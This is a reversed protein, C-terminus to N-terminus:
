NQCSIPISINALPFFLSIWLSNNLQRKLAVRIHIIQIMVDLVWQIALQWGFPILFYKLCVSNKIQNNTTKTHLFFTYFICWIIQYKPCYCITNCFQTHWKKKLNDNMTFNMHEGVVVFIWKLNINLEHMRNCDQLKNCSLLDICFCSKM